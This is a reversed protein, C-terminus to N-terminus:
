TFTSELLSSIHLRDELYLTLIYIWSSPSSTATLLRLELRLKILLSSYPPYYSNSVISSAPKSKPISFSSFSPFFVMSPHDKYLRFHHRFFPGDNGSFLALKSFFHRFSNQWSRFSSFDQALSQSLCCPLRPILSYTPPHLLL